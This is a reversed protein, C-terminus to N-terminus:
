PGGGVVAKARQRRAMAAELLRRERQVVELLQMEIFDDLDGGDGMYGRWPGRGEEAELGAGGARGGAGADSVRATTVMSDGRDAGAPPGADETDATAAAASAEDVSCNSLGGRARASACGADDAGACAHLACGEGEDCGPGGESACGSRACMDRERGCRDGGAVAPAAPVPEAHMHEHAPTLAATLVAVHERLAAHPPQLKLNISPLVIFTALLAVLVFSVATSGWRILDSFASIRVTARESLTSLLHEQWAARVGRSTNPLGRPEAHMGNGGLLSPSAAAHTQPGSLVARRTEPPPSRHTRSLLIRAASPVPLRLAAGRPMRASADKAIRLAFAVDSHHDREDPRSGQPPFRLVLRQKLQTYCSIGQSVSQSSITAKLISNRLFHARVWVLVHARGAAQSIRWLFEVRFKAVTILPMTQLGVCAPTDCAPTNCARARTRADHPPAAAVCM